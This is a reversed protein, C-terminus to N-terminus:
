GPSLTLTQDAVSVLWAGGPVVADRSAAHIVLVRRSDQAEVYWSGTIAGPTSGGKFAVHDLDGVDGLGPNRSLIERLPAGAETTAMAQLAVHARCVDEATAFWDLGDPWAPRVVLSADLVLEGGALADVVDRQRESVRPDEDLPDSGTAETWARRASASVFALEFMERTTLFPSLVEPASHGMRVVAAEVAERGVADVLLDTATNDSIAIMADAAERVSVTTGTPEEQLTGTPLSRLEDTLTLTDIWALDGQDVARVVAGLVYLKFVSGVPRLVDPEVTAVPECAADAGDGTVEALLFSSEPAAAAIAEVAEELSGITPLEQAPQLFLGQILEDDDTSVSIVYRADDAGTVETRAGGDGEAYGTVTFPGLARLQDFVAAVDSAAVEALFVPAFAAAAEGATPGREAALHELVWRSARGAATDPIQVPIATAPVPTATAAGPSAAPDPSCAVLSTALVVAAAVAAVARRSPM